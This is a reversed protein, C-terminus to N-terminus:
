LRKHTKYYKIYQRYSMPLLNLNIENCQHFNGVQTYINGQYAFCFAPMDIYKVAHKPGPALKIPHSETTTIVGLRNLTHLINRVKIEGLNCIQMVSRISLSLGRTHLSESSPKIFTTRRKPGTSKEFMRARVHYAIARMHDELIKAILRSEVTTLTEHHGIGIRYRKRESHAERVKKTSVLLVNAGRHEILGISHLYTMYNHLTRPAIGISAAILDKRSSYNLLLSKPTKQKLLYYCAVAKTQRAQIALILIQKCVNQNTSAKHEQINYRQRTM